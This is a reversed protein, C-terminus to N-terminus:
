RAAFRGLGRIGSGLFGGIWLQRGDAHFALVEGGGIRPNFTSTDLSGPNDYDITAVERDGPGMEHGGIYVRSGIREVASVDGETEWRRLLDGDDDVLEAQGGSGNLGIWLRGRGDALLDLVLRGPEHRFDRDVGGDETRLAGLQD